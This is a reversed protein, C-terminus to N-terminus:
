SMGSAVEGYTDLVVDWFDSAVIDTAVAANPGATGFSTVTM